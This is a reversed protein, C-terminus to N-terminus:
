LSRVSDISRIFLHAGSVRYDRIADPLPPTDEGHIWITRDPPFAHRLQYALGRNRSISGVVVTDFRDLAELLSTAEVEEASRLQPDLVRTTGFGRGYLHSVDEQFDQYIWPPSFLPVCNTGFITKLGILTLTSLYDAVGPHQEDVFLVKDADTLLARDLMYRAMAETTLQETMFHHLALYAEHSPVGGAQVKELIQALADKPYHIMSFEPIQNVDIMLPASGAALIELHRFCDWGAKRHTVAFFSRSYTSLYQDHDAFAYPYGPVIPSVLHTRQHAPLPTRISSPPISFSIPWVGLETFCRDAREHVTQADDVEINWTQDVPEAVQQLVTDVELRSPPVSRAGFSPDLVDRRPSRTLRHGLKRTLARREHAPPILARSREVVQGARVVIANRRDGASMDNNAVFAATAGAEGWPRGAFRYGAHTAYKSLYESPAAILLQAPRWLQVLEEILALPTADAHFSLILDDGRQILPDLDVPTVSPLAIEQLLTNPSYREAERKDMTAVRLGADANDAIWYSHHTPQSSAHTLQGNLLELNGSGAWLQRIAENRAADAEIVVVAGIHIGLRNAAWDKLGQRFATPSAPPSIAYERPSDMLQVLVGPM